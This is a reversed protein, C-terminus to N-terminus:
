VFSESLFVNNEAMVFIEFNKLFILVSQETYTHVKYNCNTIFSDNEWYNTIFDWEIPIMGMVRLQFKLIKLELQSRTRSTLKKEIQTSNLSNFSSNSSLYSTLSQVFFFNKEHKELSIKATSFSFRVLVWWFHNKKIISWCFTM